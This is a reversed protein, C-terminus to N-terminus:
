ERVGCIIELFRDLELTVQPILENPFLLLTLLQTLLFWTLLRMGLRFRLGHPKMTVIIPSITVLTLKAKLPLTLLSHCFFPSVFVPVVRGITYKLRM